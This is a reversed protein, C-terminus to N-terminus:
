CNQEPPQDFAGAVQRFRPEFSKGIPEQEPAQNLQRAHTFMDRCSMCATEALLVDNIQLYLNFFNRGTGGIGKTGASVEQLQSQKWPRTLM